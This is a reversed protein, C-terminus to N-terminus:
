FFVVLFYSLLGLIQWRVTEPWPEDNFLTLDAMWMVHVLWSCPFILTERGDWRGAQRSETLRERWDTWLGAWSITGDCASDKQSWDVIVITGCLGKWPGIRGLVDRIQSERGLHCSTTGFHGNFIVPVLFSIEKLQLKIAHACLLHCPTKVITTNSNCFLM